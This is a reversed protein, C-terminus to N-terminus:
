KQHQKVIEDVLYEPVRQYSEFERNFYGSSQSLLRLQIAYDLIESEPVLAVIESLGGHQEDMSQIRARRQNLSNMVNGTFENSVNVTIKMIPELLTPKCKMYAEKFALRSAQKFAMENSDVSHYKGDLLTAKVGIVPFGCLHGEQCSEEFGKEVAPWYNRPVSGGFIEETFINEESGSPGFRMAVVGYFGAGGSQKIYRGDAEATERITERYAVKPAVLNVSVGVLNKVRELQYAIHSDSLGGILFQKTEPNRTVELCPDEAQLKQLTASLKAEEKADKTEMAQFYVSTPYKPKPYKIPNNKDCLTFGTEMGDLKNIAVIDGAYATKIPNLKEGYLNAMNSIRFTEDINPCYVEDGVNLTGSAIKFVNTNGKYQDFYTKFAFASFAENPDTHRVSVSGDSHKVEYPQLENPNPLYELMMELLITIGIDKIASAVLVPTVEGDNVTQHLGRHIEEMTLDEGGFFKDLLADDTLAVREILASNAKLVKEKKEDYVVDDVAKGAEYRRAKKTVVNIYGDFKEDHGLPVVFAVCNEGFQKKIDELLKEYHVEEKDMKNIVIFTPVGYKKLQNYNKLTGMEIGKQADIVLVAGKVVNLSGIVDYVFDDNGPADILNLRHGAYDFSVVALNTSSQRNKEELTYDSITNKNEVTGKKNGTAKAALAEILSTKGSGRHGLFLINRINQTELPM